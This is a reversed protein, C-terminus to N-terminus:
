EDLHKAIDELLSHGDWETENYMVTAELLNVVDESESQTDLLNHAATLLATSEALKLRMAELDKEQKELGKKAQKLMNELTADKTVDLAKNKKTPNQMSLLSNQVGSVKDFVAGGKKEGTPFYQFGDKVKKIEGVLAGDLKVPLPGNTCPKEGNTYMYEIGM